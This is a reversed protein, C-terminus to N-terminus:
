AAESIPSDAEAAPLLDATQADPSDIWAIGLEDLVLRAVQEASYSAM